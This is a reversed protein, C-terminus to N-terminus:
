QFRNRIITLAYRLGPLLEDEGHGNLEREERWDIERRLGQDIRQEETM